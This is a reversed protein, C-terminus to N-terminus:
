GFSYPCPVKGSNSSAIAGLPIRIRTISPIIMPVKGTQGYAFFHPKRGLPHSLRPKNTKIPSTRQRSNQINREGKKVDQTFYELIAKWFFPWAHKPM